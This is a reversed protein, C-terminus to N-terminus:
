TREGLHILLLNGYTEIDCKDLNWHSVYTGFDSYMTQNFDTFHTDVAITLLPNHGSKQYKLGKKHVCKHEFDLFDTKNVISNDLLNLWPLKNNSNDDKCFFSGIRPINLRAVKRGNNSVTNIFQFYEKPSLPSNLHLYEDFDINLLWKTGTQFKLWCHAYFTSQDFYPASHYINHLLVGQDRTDVPIIHFSPDSINDLSFNPIKSYAYVEDIGFKKHYKWWRRIDKTVKSTDGFIPGMCVSTKQLRPTADEWFMPLSGHYLNIKPVSPSSIHRYAEIHISLRSTSNSREFDDDHEFSNLLSNYIGLSRETFDCKLMIYGKYGSSYLPIAPVKHVLTDSDTNSEIYCSFWFTNVLDLDTDSTAFRYESQSKQLVVVTRAVAVINQQDTKNRNVDVDIRSFVLGM